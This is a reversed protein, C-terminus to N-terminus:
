SNISPATILSKSPEVSDDDTPTEEVEPKEASTKFVSFKMKLNVVWFANVKVDSPFSDADRHPQELSVRLPLPWYQM